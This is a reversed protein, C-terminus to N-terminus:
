RMGPGAGRMGERAIVWLIKTGARVTGRLTGSVKSV